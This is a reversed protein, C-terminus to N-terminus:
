DSRRHSPRARVSASAAMRSTKLNRSFKTLM